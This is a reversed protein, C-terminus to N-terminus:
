IHILSLSELLALHEPNNSVNSLPVQHSRFTGCVQVGDVKDPGTWGKPTALVIMPWRPRETQRGERAERQIRAIENCVTDLTAAMLQHMEAPDDGEVFYPKHGYGELLHCLEHRPIRALVTPNAIKYGNLVHEVRLPERLLPNDLLYIQGVSLYNAARWYADIRRLEDAALPDTSIPTAGEPSSETHSPQAVEPM